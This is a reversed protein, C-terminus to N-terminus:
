RSLMRYVRYANTNGNLMAIGSVIVASNEAVYNRFRETLSVKKESKDFTGYVANNKLTM